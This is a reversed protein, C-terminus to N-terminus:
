PTGSKMSALANPLRRWVPLDKFCMRRVELGGNPLNSSTPARLERIALAPAGSRDVGAAAGDVEVVERKTAAPESRM